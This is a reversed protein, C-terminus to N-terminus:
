AQQRFYSSLNIVKREQLLINITKKSHADLSTLLLPTHYIEDETFKKIFIENNFSAEISFLWGNNECLTIDNLRYRCLGSHFIIESKDSYSFREFLKENKIIDTAKLKLSLNLGIIDFKFYPQEGKEIYYKSKLICLSKAQNFSMIERIFLIIKKTM